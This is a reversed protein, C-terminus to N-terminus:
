ALPLTFFFACGQGPASEVWIDGGYHAVINRCIALGLGTGAPKHSVTDGNRVKHFKDFIKAREQVPIGCGTDRVMVKLHEEEASVRVLVQGRTTYKAANNLLNVLVQAIKDQDVFVAPLGEVVEVVLDVDSIDAFQGGVAEVAEAVITAPAVEKDHWVVSGSEIRSLDLFDNVLRTLREGERAIIGLNALIREGRKALEPDRDKDTMFYKTFERHLLKAFGLISTLPTRLDHSVTTLFLSKLADLEM